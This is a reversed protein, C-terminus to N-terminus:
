SESKDVFYTALRPGIVSVDAAGTRDGQVGAVGDLGGEAGRRGAGGHALRQGGPRLAGLRGATQTLNFPYTYPSWNLWDDGFDGGDPMERGVKLATVPMIPTLLLDYRQHFRLM